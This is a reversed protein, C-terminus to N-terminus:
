QREPQDWFTKAAKRDWLWRGMPILSGDDVAFIHVECNTMFNPGNAIMEDLEHHAKTVVAEFSSQLVKQVNVGYTDYFTAEDEIDRDPDTNPSSFTSRLLYLSVGEVAHKELLGIVTPQDIFERDDLTTEELGRLFLGFIATRINRDQTSASIAAKMYEVVNEVSRVPLPGWMSKLKEITAEIRDKM